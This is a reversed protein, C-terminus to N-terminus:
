GATVFSFPRGTMSAIVVQPELLDLWACRVSRPLSFLLDKAYACTCDRGPCRRPEVVQRSAACAACQIYEAIRGAATPAQYPDREPPLPPTKVM